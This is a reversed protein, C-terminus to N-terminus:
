LTLGRRKNELVDVVGIEPTEIGLEVIEVNTEIDKFQELRQVKTVAFSNHVSVDFRMVNHDVM